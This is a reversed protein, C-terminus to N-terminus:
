PNDPYVKDFQLSTINFEARVSDFQALSYPGLIANPSHKRHVDIVYYNTVNVDPEGEHDDGPIPHQKAIIYDNNHGVAFVYAPVVIIGGKDDPELMSECIVRYEKRNAYGVNYRGALYEFENNFLSCGQLVFLLVFAPIITRM